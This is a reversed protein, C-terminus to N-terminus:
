RGRRREAFRKGRGADIDSDAQQIRESLGPISELYGWVAESVSHSKPATPSVRAGAERQPDKRM